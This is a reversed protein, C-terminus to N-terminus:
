MLHTDHKQVPQVLAPAWKLGKPFSCPPGSCATRWMPSKPFTSAPASPTAFILMVSEWIWSLPGCLTMPRVTTTRMLSLDRRGMRTKVNNENEYNVTHIRGKGFQLALVIGVISYEKTISFKILWNNTNFMCTYLFHLTMTM